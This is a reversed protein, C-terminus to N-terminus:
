GRTLLRLLDGEQEDTLGAPLEDTPASRTMRWALGDALTTALPRLQLGAALARANSRANMGYWSRDHLWLPLSKPGSWENVGQDILWPEPALVVDDTHGAVARAVEIHEPFTVPSGMANFVGGSSAGACRVLWAALDRVDIVGTPLDAADPVLVRGDANSPRAFRWPWYTTRGTPDGPGGILGARAIVSRESGFAAVVADECAVKAAGYDDPDTFTDAVLPALREVDEDAGIAAQSAYVNATSVFVYRTAVPELERVARRVHGPQRAVDIVADWETTRVPDLASAEDRDAQVLGAGSPVASGRALCTVEHGAALAARAIEHGLWATGGLVLIKM